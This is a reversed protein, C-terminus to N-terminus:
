KYFSEEISDFGASEGCHTDRFTCSQWRDNNIVKENRLKELIDESLADGFMDTEFNVSFKNTRALPIIRRALNFPSSLKIAKTQTFVPSHFCLVCTYLIGLIEFSYLNRHIIRM